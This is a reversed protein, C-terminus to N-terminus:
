SEVITFAVGEVENIRKMQEGIDKNYSITLLIGLSGAIGSKSPIIELYCDRKYMERLEEAIEGARSLNNIEIYFHISRKRRREVRTLFSATFVCLLMVLIAGEYFGFGLAIGIIATTWLGAATTLGTIANGSKVIIMGAGLFGIGSVVQAAVRFPDGSYGLVKISYVGLLATMAAGLCVLVHTRLGAQRGHKGREHGIVGGFLAALFIRLVVSLLSLDQEFATLAAFFARM